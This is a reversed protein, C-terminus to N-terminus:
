APEGETVAPMAGVRRMVERALEVSEPANWARNRGSPHPLICYSPARLHTGVWPGVRMVAGLPTYPVAFAAAVKAGLMVVVGGSRDRWIREAAMRAEQFKWRGACLNVRDFAQLYAHASLGLIRALRAGSAYKPLPYLALRPDAGYPNQEGVLLPKM